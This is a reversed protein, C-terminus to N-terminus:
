EEGEMVTGGLSKQLEDLTDAPADIAWNGGILVDQDFSAVGEAWYTALDHTPFIALIFDDACARLSSGSILPAEGRDEYTDCDAGADVVHEHLEDITSADVPETPTGSCGTAILASVVITALLTRPV